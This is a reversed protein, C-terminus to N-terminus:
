GAHDNGLPGDGLRRRLGALAGAIHARMLRGAAARDGAQVAALIAAHEAAEEEWTEGRLWGQAAVLATQDQLGALVRELVPNGSGAALSQHFARNLLAMRGFDRKGAAGAARRLAAEAAALCASQRRRAALRVAEPELLLRVEYVNTALQRDVRRVTAGRYPLVEVLGREVLTKIAERVPTKSVALAQALDREVLASGPMLDGSLIARRLEEVILEARAPAANVPQLSAAAEARQVSV